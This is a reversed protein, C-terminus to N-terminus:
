KYDLRGACDPHSPKRDSPAPELVLDRLSREGFSSMIAQTLRGQVHVIAAPLAIADLDPNPLAPLRAALVIDHLRINALDMGPVHGAPQHRGAAGAWTRATKDLVPLLRFGPIRLIEVAQDVTPPPEHRLFARGVLYMFALALMERQGDGTEYRHKDRSIFHPHQLYFAIQAGVLLILWLVDLWILLLIVIAFGLYVANYQTSSVVFATFLLGGVQWLLAACIGGIFAPKFYVQANPIFLYTSTFTLAILFFPTIRTLLYFGLGVPQLSLV